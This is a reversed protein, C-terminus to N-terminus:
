PGSSGSSTASRLRLVGHAQAALEQQREDADGHQRGQTGDARCHAKQGTLRSRLQGAVERHCSGRVLCQEVLTRRATLGLRANDGLFRPELREDACLADVARGELIHRDVHTASRGRSGAKWM